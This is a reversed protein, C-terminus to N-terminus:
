RCKKRVVRKMGLVFDQRIDSETSFSIFPIKLKSVIGNLAEQNKEWQETWIKRAAQRDTDIFFKQDQHFCGIRGIPPIAQDAPDNVAIFTVDCKKVLRSLEKELTANNEIPLFDSIFYVIAGAPAIRYISSVVENLFVRHNELPPETFIKLMQGLSQKTRKSETLYLGNKVDGFFCLRIRDQQALAEWGLMSAIHAAQVSKFTNRTGFRMQENMDVAVVIQREKEEKFIKIHPSGTRATVRWDISRIDDGLVYERVADFELGQGRFPSHHNGSITSKVSRSSVHKFLSKKNRLAVLDNFKPYLM